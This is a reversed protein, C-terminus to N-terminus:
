GSGESGGHAPGGLVVHYTRTLQEVGSMDLELDYKKALTMLRGVDPPGGRGVIEALEEFYREFGGPSIIELVRAPAASQNWFTHRIGKPKYVLSGAPAEIVQDGIQATVVGDLVYSVEDERHHTHPPGALTRPALPHEVVALRGATESGFLKFVVGLGGVRVAKGEGPLIALASM